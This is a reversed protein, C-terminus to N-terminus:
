ISYNIKIVDRFQDFNYKGAIFFNCKVTKVYFLQILALELENQVENSHCIGITKALFTALKSRSKSCSAHSQM